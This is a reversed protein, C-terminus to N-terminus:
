GVISWGLLVRSSGCRPPCERLKGRRLKESRRMYAIGVRDLVLATTYCDEWLGGNKRNQEYLWAKARDLAPISRALLDDRGLKAIQRRPKKHKLAYLLETAFVTSHMSVEPDRLLLDDPWGGELMQADLLREIARISGYTVRRFRINALVAQATHRVDPVKVIGKPQESTHGVPREIWAKFWGDNMQKEVWGLAKDIRHDFRGATLWRITEIGRLTRFMNPKALMKNQPHLRERGIRKFREESNHGSEGWEGWPTQFDLLGQFSRVCIEEVQDEFDSHGRSLKAGGDTADGIL